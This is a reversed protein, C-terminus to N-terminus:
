NEKPRSLGAVVQLDPWDSLMTGHRGDRYTDLVRGDAEIAIFHMKNYGLHREAWPRPPWVFAHYDIYDLEWGDAKIVVSVELLSLGKASWDREKCALVEEALDRAAEYTRDTLMAICAVGCGSYDRQHIQNM